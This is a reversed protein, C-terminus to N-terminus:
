PDDQLNVVGALQPLLLKFKGMMNPSSKLGFRLYHFSKKIILDNEM